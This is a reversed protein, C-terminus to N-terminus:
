AATQDGDSMRERILVYMFNATKGFTENAEELASALSSARSRHEPSEAEEGYSGLLDIFEGLADEDGQRSASWLLLLGKTRDREGGRGEYIMHALARRAAKHGMSAAQQFNARALTAAAPSKDQKWDFRKGEAFVREAPDASDGDDTM